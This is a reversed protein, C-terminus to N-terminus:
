GIFPLKAKAGGYRQNVLSGIGIPPANHASRLRDERLHKFQFQGRPKSGLAPSKASLRGHQSSSQHPQLLRRAPQQGILLAAGGAPAALQQLKGIFRIVRARWLGKPFMGDRGSAAVLCM